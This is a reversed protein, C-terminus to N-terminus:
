FWSALMTAPQGDWRVAEVLRRAAGYDALYGRNAHRSMIAGRIVPKPDGGFCHDVWECWNREDNIFDLLISAAKLPSAYGLSFCILHSLLRPYLLM